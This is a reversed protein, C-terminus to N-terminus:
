LCLIHIQIDGVTYSPGDVTQDNGHLMTINSIHQQGIVYLDYMQLEMMFMEFCHDISTVYVLSM